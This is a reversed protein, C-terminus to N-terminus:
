RILNKITTLETQISMEVRSIMKELDAKVTPRLLTFTIGLDKLQEINDLRSEAFHTIGLSKISSVIHKDGAVCKIVPTFHIQKCELLSQLVKPMINLKLYISVFM